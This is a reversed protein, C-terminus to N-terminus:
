SYSSAFSSSSDLFQRIDAAPRGSSSSAGPRVAAAMRSALNTRRTAVASPSASAELARALLGTAALADGDATAVLRVFGAERIAAATRGPADENPRGAASM